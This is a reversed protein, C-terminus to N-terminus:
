LLVLGVWFSGATPAFAVQRAIAKVVRWCILKYTVFLVRGGGSAVTLIIKNRGGVGHTSTPVLIRPRPLCM